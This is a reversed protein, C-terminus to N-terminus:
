SSDEEHLLKWSQGSTMQPKPEAESTPARDMATAAPPAKCHRAADIRKGDLAAGFFDQSLQSGNRNGKGMKGTSM